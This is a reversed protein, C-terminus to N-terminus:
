APTLPETFEEERPEIPEPRPEILKGRWNAWAWFFATSTSLCGAILGITRTEVHKTAISAATLSLLMTAQLMSEVTTFVRGRYRDPVHTLLMNRNLVNNAGQGVRSLVIWVIAWGLTPAQSFAVYALGHLLFLLSIAHKYAGFGLRRALAHSLFGGAVLGLGASGWIWGVGAPGREFIVEGYLTFLIQAAGGGSAWGVGAMGIAFVLPTHGIYRLGDSHDRWFSRQPRVAAMPRFHGAPSRLFAVAAASVFFSAANVAFAWGYGFQMTAVGGLMAGLSLTFWATTQTLANATPLEDPTTIAPLIASRGATFFPSCFMLLSSFVYLLWSAPYQLVLLFGLGIFGRLIDSALMVKKRDWRDLLVGAVPAAAIASVTRALMVGGVAFGSDDVRLAMSLVAITNFHDGAESVVQGLWLNRYNRNDRLLTSFHIM